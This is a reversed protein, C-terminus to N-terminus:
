RLNMPPSPERRRRRRYSVMCACAPAELAHILFGSERCKKNWHPCNHVIHELNEVAEGCRVCTDGVQFASHAREEHWVGGLAANLNGTKRTARGM